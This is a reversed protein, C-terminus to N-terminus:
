PTEQPTPGERTVTIGLEALGDVLHTEITQPSLKLLVTHMLCSRGANPHIVELYADTVPVGEILGRDVVRLHYSVM